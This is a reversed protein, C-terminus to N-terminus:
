LQRRSEDRAQWGPLRVAYPCATVTLRTSDRRPQIARVPYEVPLVGLPEFKNRLGTEKKKRSIAALPLHHLDVPGFLCRHRCPAGPWRPGSHDGALIDDCGVDDPRALRRVGASLRGILRRAHRRLRAYWILM